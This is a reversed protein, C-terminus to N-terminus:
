EDGIVANAHLPVGDRLIEIQESSPLGLGLGPGSADGPDLGLGEATLQASM